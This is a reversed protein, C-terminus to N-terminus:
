AKAQEENLRTGVALQLMFEISGQQDQDRGVNGIPFAGPSAM